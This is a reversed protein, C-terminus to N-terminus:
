SKVARDPRVDYLNRLASLEVVRTQSLTLHHSVVIIEHGHSPLRYDRFVFAVAGARSAPPSGTDESLFVVEQVLLVVTVDVAGVRSAARVRWM